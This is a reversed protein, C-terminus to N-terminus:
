LYRRVKALRDHLVAARAANAGPGGHVGGGPHASASALFLSRIPTEPRGLGPFPRFVLQQHLEATGGSIAGGNLNANEAQFSAPTLVHRGRRLERFGPARAEITAEIRDVLADIARPDSAADSRDPHPVHTYAWATEKGPPQRSPDTMSQQGVILFPNRPIAGSVLEATAQTLENVSDVVHVTGAARAPEATWPIPGDLNWDVKVTGNDWQFKTLNHRFSPPLDNERLLSRYLAPATVDAIVARVSEVELGASTRVGLARNGRVIIGDVRADCRVEGGLSELRRVLASALAGAGGRPVPFGVSQGLACMLWGFFGSLGTEPALDAHLASGALLRRAGEGTFYEEGLRRVPLVLFRIFDSYERPRVCRALQAGARIPPFATFLTGLLADAVNTWRAYLARWGDGDGAHLADLSAATVDLDRSLVPCTGDLAPHAIVSPAHLWQLGWSELHLRDLVPSAAGLPYFASCVDNTYGPEILEASRVGGGPQAAAELVVVRWGKGALLNAAVLGNPGSGVVVADVATM